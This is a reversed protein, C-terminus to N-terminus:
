AAVRFLRRQAGEPRLNAQDHSAVHSTSIEGALTAIRTWIGQEEKPSFFYPYLSRRGNARQGAHERILRRIESVKLWMLQVPVDSPWWEVDPNLKPPGMRSFGLMAEYFRIHRPHVEIVLDTCGYSHTGFIFIAHFLAALGAQSKEAPDCAFKKLECLKVGPQNRLRDLEESFTEDAALGEASDVGLTLTGIPRDDSWATFTINHEDASLQHDAGYGRWGYMKNILISAQNRQGDTDALRVAITKGLEDDDVTQECLLAGLDDRCAGPAARMTSLM